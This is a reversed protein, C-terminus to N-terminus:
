HRKYLSELNDLMTNYSYKENVLQNANRCMEKAEERNQLMELIKSAMAEPDNVPATLGTVGDKVIERLPELDSSVVPTNMAMAQLLSQPIGENAYSPHVLIDLSSIVFPVDDRHGLMYVHDRAKVKDLADEITSRYPGEGAIVFRLDPTKDLMAPIANIIDVHGKWSRLVSVMGVLPTGEPLSLEDRLDNNAKDPDFIDTDVGTPISIIKDANYGNSNILQERIANGTTIVFHPLMSYILRNHIGTHVPTSLHRTRLVMPKNAAIRAAPLALWSDKSSHTNVIDVKDDEILKKMYSIISLFNRRKFVIPITRFGAKEAKLFLCSKPDAAIIMNHGRDQMGSAERFTRIEQGGWGLSAETHLINM